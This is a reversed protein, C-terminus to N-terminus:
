STQTNRQLIGSVSVEDVSQCFFDAPKTLATELHTQYNARSIEIGGLTQLHDTMFQTDFLQFGGINLRDVLYALAIKSASPRRSFMSEGFFAGGIAVGYVGGILEGTEYLELSHAFGMHHLMRYLDFIEQNIWTKEREACAAVVAQFDINVAIRYEEKRLGRALSKSIHFSDLPLIGREAPDVWFIEDDDGGHSMPFVGVSYAHLLLEPTIIAADKSTM